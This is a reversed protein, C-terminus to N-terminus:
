YWSFFPSVKHCWPMLASKNSQKQWTCGSYCPPPLTLCLNICVSVLPRIVNRTDFGIDSDLWSVLAGTNDSTTPVAPSSDFGGAAPTDTFLGPSAPSPSAAAAVSAPSRVRDVLPHQLTASLQRSTILFQVDRSFCKEVVQWHLVCLPLVHWKFVSNRMIFVLRFPLSCPFIHTVFAFSVNAFYLLCFICMKVYCFFIM